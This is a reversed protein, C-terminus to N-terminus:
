STPAESPTESPTEEGSPSTTETPSPSPEGSASPSVPASEDVDTRPDDFPPEDPWAPAEGGPCSVSEPAVQRLVGVSEKFVLCAFPTNADGLGAWGGFLRDGRDLWGRATVEDGQCMAIGASFVVVAEPGSYLDPDSWDENLNQGAAGCQGDRLRRYEERDTDPIDPGTPLSFVVKRGSNSSGNGDGGNRGNAGDPSTTPTSDGGGEGSPSATSAGGDPADRGGDGGLAGSGCASLVLACLGVLITSRAPSLFDRLGM